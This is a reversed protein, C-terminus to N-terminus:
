QSDLFKLILAMHALLSFSKHCFGLIKHSRNAESQFAVEGAGKSPIAEFQIQPLILIRAGGGGGSKDKEVYPCIYLIHQSM